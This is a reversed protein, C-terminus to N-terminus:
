LLMMLLLLLLGLECIHVSLLVHKTPHHLRLHLLLLRLPWEIPRRKPMRKSVYSIRIRSTISHEMNLHLM